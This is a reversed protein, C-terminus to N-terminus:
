VLGRRLGIRLSCVRDRLQYTREDVVGMREREGTYEESVEYKDM